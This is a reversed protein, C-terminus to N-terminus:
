AMAHQVGQMRAHKLEEAACVSLAHPDMCHLAHLLSLSHAASKTVDVAAGSCCWWHERLGKLREGGMCMRMSPVRGHHQGCLPM